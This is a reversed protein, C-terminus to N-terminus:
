PRDENKEAVEAIMSADTSAHHGYAHTRSRLYGARCKKMQLQQTASASQSMKRKKTKAYTERDLL